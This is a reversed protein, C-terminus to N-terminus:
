TSGHGSTLINRAEGEGVVKAIKKFHKGHLLGLPVLMRSRSGIDIYIRLDHVVHSVLRTSCVHDSM